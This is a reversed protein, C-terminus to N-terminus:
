RRKNGMAYCRRRCYLLGIRGQSERVCQTHESRTHVKYPKCHTHTAENHMTTSMQMHACARQQGKESKEIYDNMLLM